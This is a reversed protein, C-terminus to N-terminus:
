ALCTPPLVANTTVLLTLWAKCEAGSQWLSHISGTLHTRSVEVSNLGAFALLAQSLLGQKALKSAALPCAM